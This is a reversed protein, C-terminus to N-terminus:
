KTKLVPLSVRQGSDSAKLQKAYLPSSCGGEGCGCSNGRGARIVRRLLYAGAIFVTALSIWDQLTM